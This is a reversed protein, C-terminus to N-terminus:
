RVRYISYPGDQFVRTREVCAPIGQGSWKIEHLVLDDKNEINVIFIDPTDGTRNHYDACLSGYKKLPRLLTFYLGEINNTYIAAEPINSKIYDFTKSSANKRSNQGRGNNRMHNTWVGYSAMNVAVLGVILIRIIGYAGRWSFTANALVGAAFILFSLFAISLLRIDFVLTADVFSMLIALTIGYVAPYLLFISLSRPPSPPTAHRQPLRRLFLFLIAALVILFAFCGLLEQGPFLRIRDSGPFLTASCTYVLQTLKEKDILFLSMPRGTFAGGSLRNRLLWAFLPLAAIGSFLALGRIRSWIPREKELCLLSLGITGMLAIGAYRTLVALLCCLAALCLSPLSDRDRYRAYGYLGGLTFLVFPPESQAWTHIELNVVSFCFLVTCALAALGNGATYTRAIAALLLISAAMCAANLINISSPISKITNISVALLLPYGPPFWVATREQGGFLDVIYGKGDLINLASNLYIASDFHIGAGYPSAYYLYHLSFALALALSIAAYRKTVFNKVADQRNRQM